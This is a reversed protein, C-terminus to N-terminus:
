PWLSATVWGFLEAEGQSRNCPDKQDAALTPGSSNITLLHDASVSCFTKKWHSSCGQQIIFPPPAPDPPQAAAQVQSGGWTGRRLAAADQQPCGKASFCCTLPEAPQCAPRPTSSLCRDWRLVALMKGLTDYNAQPILYPFIVSDWFPRPQCPARFIMWDWGRGLLIVQLVSCLIADLHTQSDGSFSVGCGTQAFSSTFHGLASSSFGQPGLLM